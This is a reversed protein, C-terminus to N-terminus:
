KLKSIRIVELPNALQTKNKLFKLISFNESNSIKLLYVKSDLKKFSFEQNSLEKFNLIQLPDFIKYIEEKKLPLQPRNTSVTVKKIKLGPYLELGMLTNELDKKGIALAIYERESEIGVPLAKDVLIKPQPHFGLTYVLPFQLRKLILIFLRIVELQSLFIAKDKKTYFIEYWFEKEETPPHVKLIFPTEKASPALLTKIERNCVGCHNCEVKCDKTIKEQYAKEREQLLFEKSVRLNIHDWPLVEELKRERLYAELDIKLEWAVERWVMLNFFDKWSNLRAGRQYAKEISMRLSRDGRAIVGELFSQEPSHYKFVKSPLFKKLFSIKEYTEKLSIQREWQFPTQPKPVFTSVSIKIELKPFTKKLEKYIHAIGKLDEETETPLGIMFYLKVRRWGLKYALELDKWLDEVKIDKNIVRRLRETGAEPALTLGTKRGLKIFELLEESLSGVRLSPLSFFFTRQNESYFTLKLLNILETLCSYDCTSLSMLSAEFYGTEKFNQYLEKLIMKPTKERLPRYYISAECFRCGRTCGRSIELPIRDHSLPIIPIGFLYFYNKPNLNSVVRKKVSNRIPPVYVGEIQTLAEWLKVRKQGSNKWEKILELVEFIVEEGDGIIMADFFEAVPEPNGCCPGGGLVIPDFETRQEARWPIGSLDLINLIETALLEYAYSIGLLDFERLPKRYNLSLLPIKSTKLEKEFDPAVAFCLDALYDSSQNVLSSLIIIGLHSRGIEYLDPYCFCVKLKTKEWDKKLFFPEEGLYRSPKRVKILIDYPYDKEM